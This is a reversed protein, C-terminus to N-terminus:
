PTARYSAPMTAILRGSDDRVDRPLLCARLREVTIPRLEHALNGLERAEGGRNPPAALTVRKDPFATRLERLLPVQDSDATVLVARGYDNRMADGLMAVAIAVDTQKEEHRDCYRNMLRCHKSIKRFNSEVVVVGVAELARIYSKHRQQKERDWTLVATFYSTKNLAEGPKIYSRALEKLNLWKIEPKNVAAIAHYLNFGDIYMNVKTLEKTKYDTSMRPAPAMISGDVRHAPGMPFPPEVQM